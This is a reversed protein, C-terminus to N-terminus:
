ESPEKKEPSMKADEQELSMRRDTLGEFEKPIIFLSKLANSQEVEVTSVDKNKEFLPVLPKTMEEKPRGVLDFSSRIYSVENRTLSRPAIVINKVKEKDEEEDELRAMNKGLRKFLKIRSNVPVYRMQGLDNTKGGDIIMYDAKEGKTGGFTETFAYDRYRNM